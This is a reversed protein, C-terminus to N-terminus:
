GGRLSWAAPNRKVATHSHKNVINKIQSFKTYCEIWLRKDDRVADMISSNNSAPTWTGTIFTKPQRSGLNWGRHSNIGTLKKKKKIYHEILIPIHNSEWSDIGVRWHFYKHDENVLTLNISSEKNLAQGHYTTWGDSLIVMAHLSCSQTIAM